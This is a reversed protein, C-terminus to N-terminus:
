VIPLGSHYSDSGDIMLHVRSSREALGLQTGFMLVKPWTIGSLPLKQSHM